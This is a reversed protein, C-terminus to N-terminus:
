YSQNYIITPFWSLFISFAVSAVMVLTLIVRINKCNNYKYSARKGTSMPIYIYVKCASAIVYKDKLQKKQEMGIVHRWNWNRVDRPCYFLSTLLLECDTVIVQPLKVCNLATNFSM